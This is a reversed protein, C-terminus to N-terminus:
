GMPPRDAGCPEKVTAREQGAADIDGHAIRPIGIDHVDASTIAAAVSAASDPLCCVIQGSVWGPRSPHRNRVVEGAQGDEAFTERQVWVIWVNEVCRHVSRVAANELRGIGALVPLVQQAVNERRCEEACEDYM